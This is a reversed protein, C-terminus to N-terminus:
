WATWGGDVMLTQGTIYEADRSLLFAVVGAIDEESAMRQLPTRAEYARVFSEPQGRAVGGPAVTNVRVAPALTTSLWRGLQVMGGKSAAYAGPCVMETGEYISNDPGVVGYISSVLVMSASGSRRLMPHLAQTLFFPALLNVRMVKLWADYSEQEFPVGWGEATDYFAANHVLGHLQGFRQEIRAPLSAIANQDSLDIDFGVADTQGQQAIQTAAAAAREPERDIIAIAAGAEACRMAVAHGIHGAGGTIAVVGEIRM